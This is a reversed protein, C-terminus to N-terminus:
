KDTRNLWEPKVTSQHVQVFMEETIGGLIPELMKILYTPDEMLRPYHPMVVKQDHKACEVLLHSLSRLLILQQKELRSTKYLGGAHGRRSGFMRGFLGSNNVNEKSVNVRSQVAEDIDRIPVIVLDLGIHHSELVEHIYNSLNPSKIVYAASDERINSELGARGIPDLKDFVEDAKFGTDLGLKTLLQVLFSTGARGTGAIVM